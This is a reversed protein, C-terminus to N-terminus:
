MALRWHACSPVWWESTLLGRVVCFMLNQRIKEVIRTHEEDQLRVASDTAGPLEGSGKKLVVSRRSGVLNLKSLDEILENLVQRILVFHNLTQMDQSGFIAIQPPAQQSVSPEVPRQPSSVPMLENSRESGM